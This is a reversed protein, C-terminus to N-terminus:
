QKRRTKKRPAKKRSQAKPKKGSKARAKKTRTKKSAAKRRKKRRPSGVNKEDRRDAGPQTKEKGYIQDLNPEVDPATGVVDWSLGPTSPLPSPLPQVPVVPGATVIESAPVQPGPAPATAPKGARLQALEAEFAADERAQNMLMQRYAPQDKKLVFVGKPATLPMDTEM